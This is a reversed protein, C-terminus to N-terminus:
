YFNQDNCAAGLLTLRTKSSVLSQWPIKVIEFLCFTGVSSQAVRHIATEPSSRLVTKVALRDDTKRSRPSLLPGLDRYLGGPGTPGLPRPSLDSRHDCSRPKVTGSIVRTAWASPPFYNKKRNSIEARRDVDQTMKNEDRFTYTM